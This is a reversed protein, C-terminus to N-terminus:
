FYSFGMGITKMALLTPKRLVTQLAYVFEHRVIRKARNHINNWEMRDSVKMAETVNEREAMQSIILDIRKKYSHDIEHLYVWLSGNM